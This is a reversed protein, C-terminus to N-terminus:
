VGKNVYKWHYGGATKYKGKCCASISIRNVNYKESALKICDFVESTEICMVRKACPSKSGKLTESVRKRNEESSWFNKFFESLKKRRGEDVWQKEMAEKKRLKGEETSYYKKLSKIRKKNSDGSFEYHEGGSTLNYGKDRNMSDYFSIWHKEKANLEDRDCAVDIQEITFNEKGYKLIANKLAQCCSYRRCHQSWRQKLSKSTQGIYVNGNIRNTIKYIIM